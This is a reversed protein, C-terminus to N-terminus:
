NQAPPTAPAQEGGAPAPAAAAGPDKKAVEEGVSQALDRAIGRQWIEAAKIVERTVIPGDDLLKKGTESTYFTVINRLDQESFVKAYATAAERELDTRRAAMELTKTDVTTSILEQLDPNQQIMQQKLAFAAQPLINDYMETAKIAAVAERAAKMHTASIQDQANASLSMATLALTVAAARTIAFLSM